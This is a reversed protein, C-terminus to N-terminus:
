KKINNEPLAYWPSIKRNYKDNVYECFNEATHTNSRIEWNSMAAFLTNINGEEEMNHWINFKIGESTEVASLKLSKKDM